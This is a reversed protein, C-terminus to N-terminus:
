VDQAPACFPEGRLILLSLLTNSVRFAAAHIKREVGVNRFSYENLVHVMRKASGIPQTYDDASFRLTKIILLCPRRRRLLFFKSAEIYFRRAIMLLLAVSRAAISQ